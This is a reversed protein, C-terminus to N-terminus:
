SMHESSVQANTLFLLKQAGNNVDEVMQFMTRAKIEEFRAQTIEETDFNTSLGDDWMSESAPKEEPPDGKKGSAVTPLGALAGGVGSLAAEARGGASMNMTSSPVALEQRIQPQSGGGIAGATATAAGAAAETFRVLPTEEAPDFDM